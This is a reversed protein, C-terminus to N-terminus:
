VTAWWTGRDMSNELCSYHQPNGNGEGPCRGLRSIWGPDGVSYASEKGDSGGPFRKHYSFVSLIPFCIHFGRVLHFVNIVQQGPASPSIINNGTAGDQTRVMLWDSFRAQAVVHRTVRRGWRAKLLVKRFRKLLSPGKRCSGGHGQTARCYVKRQELRPRNLENPSGTGPVFFKARVFSSKRFVIKGLIAM